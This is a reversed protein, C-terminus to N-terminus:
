FSPDWYEERVGLLLGTGDAQSEGKRVWRGNRRLTYVEERGAPDAFYRYTQDESQGNTDTRVARDARVWKTKGSRNTAIVTVPHRDSYGCVTGADEAETPLEVGAAEAAAIRAAAIRAADKAERDTVLRAALAHAAANTPTLRVNYHDWNTEWQVRYTRDGIQVAEGIGLSRCHKWEAMGQGDASLVTACASLFDGAYSYRSGAHFPQDSANVKFWHNKAEPITLHENHALTKV